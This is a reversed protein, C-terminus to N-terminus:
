GIRTWPGGGFLAGILMDSGHGSRVDTLTLSAGELRWGASFLVRGAAAGCDPGKPGLTVVLRDDVIEYFSGPCGPYDPDGLMGDRFTLTWVGAHEHATAPNLGRDM